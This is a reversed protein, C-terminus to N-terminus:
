LSSCLREDYKADLLIARILFFDAAVYM